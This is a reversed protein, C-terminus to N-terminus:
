VGVIGGILAADTGDPVFPRGDEGGARQNAALLLPLLTAVAQIGAERRTAGCIHGTGFM